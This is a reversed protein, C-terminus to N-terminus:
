DNTTSAGFNAAWAAQANEFGDAQIAYATVAITASGYDSVDANDAIKFSAFIAVDQVTERADVAAEKYFVNDVKANDITLEKWGNKAMQGAITTAEAGEVASDIAEVNKIGNVVKVFVYCPESGATVHITPDKIYEHGPILKYAVGDTDRDAKEAEKGEEAAKYLQKGYVDVSAEDMTINVSGVSFTNTVTAQSTLYAMTGAISAGVLLVACLLLALIKKAKKM